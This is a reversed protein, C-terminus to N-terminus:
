MTLNGISTDQLESLICKEVLNIKVKCCVSVHLTKM